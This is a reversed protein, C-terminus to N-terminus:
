PKAPPNYAIGEITGSVSLGNNFSYLFTLGAPSYAYVDVEGALPAACALTMSQKNLSCWVGENMLPFPGAVLTCAPNCGSYLWVQLGTKDVSVINGNRDFELSGYDTNMFGTAQVGTGTCGAFYTLTAVPSTASNEASAWCDGNSALLVGAVKYMTTANTLNATCGGALTCISISGGAGSNDFINGILMTGNIADYTYASAPQGYNELFSGAEAGCMAPGQWVAVAHAASSNAAEPTVLNGAPDVFIGNVDSSSGTMVTCSAPNNAKNQVPYGYVANGYFQNVYLGKSAGTKGRLPTLKMLTQRFSAQVHRADDNNVLNAVPQWVPRQIHHHHVMNRIQSQSLTSSGSPNTSMGSCGALLAVAVTTCLGTSLLRM